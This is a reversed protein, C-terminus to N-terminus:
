KLRKKKLLSITGQMIELMNCIDKKCVPYNRYSPRSVNVIRRCKEFHESSESLYHRRAILVSGVLPLVFSM